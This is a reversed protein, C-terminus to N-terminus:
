STRVGFHGKLEGVARKVAVVVNYKCYMRILRQAEESVLGRIKFAFNQATEFGALVHAVQM